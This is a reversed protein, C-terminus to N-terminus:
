QLVVIFWVPPPPLHIQSPLSPADGDWDIKRAMGPVRVVRWRWAIPASFKGPLNWRTLVAAANARPMKRQFQQNPNWLKKFRSIRSFL